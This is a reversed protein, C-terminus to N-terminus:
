ELMSNTELAEVALRHAIANTSRRMHYIALISMPRLISKTEFILNGQISLDEERNIIRM